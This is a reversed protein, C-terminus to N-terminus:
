YRLVYWLIGIWEHLAVTSRDLNGVSPVMRRSLWDTPDFTFYVPMPVITDRPFVREFVWKSRMMHTASTVLGIRRGEGPLLVALKAANEMTNRSTSEIVTKDEPVGLSVAMSRMVQAESVQTGRPPGGCFALVDADSEQFYKVGRFFRPYAERALEDQKRLHGAPYLGGGLVVVVDLTALVEPSPSPHRSELSHALLNAVPDLSLALLILFAALLFCWGVKFLRRGRSFRTGILGLIMLLLVWVIPTAFSKVLHYM